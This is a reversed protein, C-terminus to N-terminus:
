IQLWSEPWFNSNSSPNLNKPRICIKNEYNSLWAGWWHFTTPGVIFYKCHTLLFFDNLTKNKDNIIFTYKNEPFYERLNTFDDSWLYYKPNKIKTEILTEAKKIYEITDKVFLRSKEISLPNSHNGPRESFRNQRVCISVINKDSFNKLYLNKKYKIQNIFKFEKIINERENVFYKESEFNGELFFQKKFSTNELYDYYFTGKNVDKAEILFEKYRRFHNIKIKLKRFINKQYSNFKLDDSITKGSIYFNNLLYSRVNKHFYSSEDDVYLNYNIKKSLTYANAYMFLQNGLGESIRVILKNNM